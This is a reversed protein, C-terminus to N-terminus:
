DTFSLLELEYGLALMDDAIEELIIMHPAVDAAITIKVTEDAMAASSLSLVLMLAVILSVLKKM